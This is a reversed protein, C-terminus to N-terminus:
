TSANTHRDIEENAANGVAHVERIIERVRDPTIKGTDLIEVLKLMHIIFGDLPYINLNRKDNSSQAIHKALDATYKWNEIAAQMVLQRLARREESRRALWHSFASIISAIGGGVAAGIITGTTADLATM